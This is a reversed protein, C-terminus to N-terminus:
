RAGKSPPSVRRRFAVVLISSVLAAIAPCVLPAGVSARAAVLAFVVLTAASTIALAAWALRDRWRERRRDAELAAETGARVREFSAERERALRVEATPEATRFPGADADEM